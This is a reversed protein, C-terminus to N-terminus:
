IAGAPSSYRGRNRRRDGRGDEDRLGVFDLRRNELQAVLDLVAVGLLHAPVLARRRRGRQDIPHSRAPAARRARSRRELRERESGLVFDPVDRRLRRHLEGAAHLVPDACNRSARSRRRSPRKRRWCRRGRRARRDLHEGVVLDRGRRDIAALVRVGAGHEDGDAPQRLAEAQGVGRQLEPGLGVDEVFLADRVLPAARRGFVNRESKRSRLTPSRTTWTSLPM